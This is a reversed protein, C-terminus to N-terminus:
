ATASFPSFPDMLSDLAGADVSLGAEQLASTLAPPQVSAAEAMAERASPGAISVVVGASLHHALWLLNAETVRVCGSSAAEGLHGSLHGTGHIAIQGPGGDFEQLTPSYANLALAYSGIASGLPQPVQETISFTGAPTPTAPAGIVARMSRVLRGHRYVRVM